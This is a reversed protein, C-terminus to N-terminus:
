RRGSRFGQRDRIAGGRGSGRRSADPPLQREPAPRSLCHKWYPTFVRFPEGQRNLTQRPDFLLNGDFATTTAGIQGFAAEVEKEVQVAAPEYRRNWFVADAKTERALGVLTEVPSGARILLRGGLKRWDGDLAPVAHHLWWRSAAGPPWEGEEEPSWVYVPIVGGRAVAALLAPNDALRLDQRFWVISNSM